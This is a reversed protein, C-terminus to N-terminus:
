PRRSRRAPGSRARRAVVPAVDEARAADDRQGDPQEEGREGRGGGGTHVEALRAQGRADEVRGALHPAGEPQRHQGRDGDVVGMGDEAPGVIPMAQLPPPRTSPPSRGPRRPPRRRRHQEREGGREDDGWRAALLGCSAGAAAVASANTAPPRPSAASGRIRGSGTRWQDLRSARIAALPGPSRESTRGRPGDPRRTATPDRLSEVFVCIVGLMRRIRQVAGPDPRATTGERGPRSASRAWARGAGGEPAAVGDPRELRVDRGDVDVHDQVAVSRGCGPGGRRLRAAADLPDTGPALHGHVGVGVPVEEGAVVGRERGAQGHGLRDEVTVTAVRGRRTTRSTSPRPRDAAPGAVDSPGRPARASTAGPRHPGPTPRALRTAARAATGSGAPVPGHRDPLHSPTTAAM